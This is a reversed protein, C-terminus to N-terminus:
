NQIYRHIKNQTGFIKVSYDNSLNLAASATGGTKLVNYALKLSPFRELDPDQFTLDGCSLFRIEGLPM